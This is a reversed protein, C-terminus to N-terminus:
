FHCIEQGRQVMDDCERVLSSLTIKDEREVVGYKYFLEKTGEDLMKEFYEKNDCILIKENITTITTKGDKDLKENIISLVLDEKRFNGSSIDSAIDSWFIHSESDCTMTETKDHRYPYQFDISWQTDDKYIVGYEKSLYLEKIEDVSITRKNLFTNQEHIFKELDKIISLTNEKGQAKIFLANLDTLLYEPLANNHSLADALSELKDTVPLGLEVWKDAFLRAADKQSLPVDRLVNPKYEELPFGFDANGMKVGRERWVEPNSMYKIAETIMMRKDALHVEYPMKECLGVKKAYFALAKDEEIKYEPLCKKYPTALDGTYTEYIEHIMAWKALEKDHTFLNALNVCHEAVSLDTQNWFRKERSLSETFLEPRFDEDKLDFPNLTNGYRDDVKCNKMINEINAHTNVRGSIKLSADMLMKAAIDRVSQIENKIIDHSNYKIALSYLSDLKNKLLKLLM